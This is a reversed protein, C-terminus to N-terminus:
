LVLSLISSLGSLRLTPSPAYAGVLLLQHKLENGVHPTSFLDHISMIQSCCLRTPTCRAIRGAAVESRHKRVKGLMVTSPM